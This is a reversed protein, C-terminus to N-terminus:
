LSESDHCFESPYLCSIEGHLASWEGEMCHPGSVRWATSVVRGGHLASWEGEM